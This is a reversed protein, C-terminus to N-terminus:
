RDKRKPAFNRYSNPVSFFFYIIIGQCLCYEPISSVWFKIMSSASNLRESMVALLTMVTLLRESAFNIESLHNYVRWHNYVRGKLSCRRPDTPVEYCLIATLLKHTPFSINFSTIQVICFSAIHNSCHFYISAICCHDTICIVKQKCNVNWMVRIIWYNPIHVYQSFHKIFQLIILIWM